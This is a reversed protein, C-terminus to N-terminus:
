SFRCDKLFRLCGLVNLVLWVVGFAGYGIPRDPPLENNGNNSGDSTVPSNSNLFGQMSNPHVNFHHNNVPLHHQRYDPHHVLLQNSSNSSSPTLITAAYYSQASLMAHQHQANPNSVMQPM